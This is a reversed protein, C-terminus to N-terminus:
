AASCLLVVKPYKQRIKLLNRTNRRIKMFAANIHAYLCLFPCVFRRVHYLQYSSKAPIRLRRFYYFLLFIKRHLEPKFNHTASGFKHTGGVIVIVLL